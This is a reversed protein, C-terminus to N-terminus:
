DWVKIEEELLKLENEWAQVQEPEKPRAGSRHRSLYVRLANRRKIKGPLRPAELVEPMQIEGTDRWHEIRQQVPLVKKQMTEVIFLAAETAEEDSMDDLRAHLDRCKALLQQREAWLPRLAAPFKQKQHTNGPVPVPAKELAQDVARRLFSQCFTRNEGAELMAKFRTNTGEALYWEAAIDYDFSSKLRLLNPHM